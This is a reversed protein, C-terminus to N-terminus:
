VYTPADVDTIFGKGLEPVLAAGHCRKLSSITGVVSFNDADLIKVESGHSVYIRRAEADVSIYDFYEAGGAAKGLPVKKILRYGSAPTAAMAVVGCLVFFTCVALRCMRSVRMSSVTM